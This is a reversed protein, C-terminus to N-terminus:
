YLKHMNVGQKANIIIGNFEIVCDNKFNTCVSDIIEDSELHIKDDIYAVTANLAGYKGNLEYVFIKKLVTEEVCKFIEHVDNDCCGGQNDVNLTKDKLFLPCSYFGGTLLQKGNRYWGSIMPIYQEGINKEVFKASYARERSQVSKYGDKIPKELDRDICKASIHPDLAFAWRLEGEESMLQVCSGLINFLCLLYKVNGTLLYLYYKTYATWASWGHPSNMFDSMIMVDYQGEWFRLSTGNTRCDPMMLLELCHHLRDMHVAADIYKKRECEPLTLAFMAIQLASCTIMGDEFTQEGETTINDLRLVLDDIAAKASMYHKEYEENMGAKKEVEALELMSKAIYIVCTYHINKRRYAGDDTQQKMLWDGFKSAILLDCKNQEPNAEYKDVLLSILTATNQIREPLVLPEYNKLDFMLPIIENFSSDTIEDLVNNPFHKAALYGSFFGYWSEAHTSAKQPKQISEERAAMLYWDWEKRCYFLTEAIKGTCTKVVAKYIGNAKMVNDSRSGDPAFYSVSYEDDSYVKLDVIGGKPMTYQTATVVPIKCIESVKKAYNKLGDQVPIVYINWVKTENAGLSCLNEPFRDPVPFDGLLALSVTHIRHGFAGPRILNYKFNYSKIADPSAIAVVEGSTNMFYGYFHTKECRIMTPFTKENWQPYSKMYTDIGLQLEISKPIYAGLGTNTVSARIIFYEDKKIYDLSYLIKGELDTGQYVENQFNLKIKKGNHLFMPGFNSNFPVICNNHTVNKITGDNKKSYNIKM